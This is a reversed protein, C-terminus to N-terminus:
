AVTADTRPGRPSMLQPRVLIVGFGYISTLLQSPTM